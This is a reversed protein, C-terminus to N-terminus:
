LYTDEISIVFAPCAFFMNLAWAASSAHSRVVGIGVEVGAPQAWRLPLQTEDLRPSRLYAETGAAVAKHNYMEYECKKPVQCFARPRGAGTRRELRAILAHLLHSAPDSGASAPACTACFLSQTYQRGRSSSHQFATWPLVHALAKNRAYARRHVWLNTVSWGGSSCICKCRKDFGRMQSFAKAILLKNFTHKPARHCYIKALSKRDHHFM